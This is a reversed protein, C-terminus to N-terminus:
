TINYGPALLHNYDPNKKMFKAVFPCLPAVQYDKSAIYDLSAKVLGRGVGKGGLEEPVETHTLFM